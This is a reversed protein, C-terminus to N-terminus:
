NPHPFSSMDITVEIRPNKKYFSIHKTGKVSNCSKCLPQINEIFDSGGDILPLIHDETLSIQPERKGCCLCAFGCRIKLENWEELTHSGEANIKRSRRELCKFRKYEKANEGTAIGGKWLPSNSGRLKQKAEESVRRGKTAVSIKKKTEDTHKRGNWDCKTGSFPRGKLATGIKKKTEESLKKGKM